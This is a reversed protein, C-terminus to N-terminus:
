GAAVRAVYGDLIQGWGSDMEGRVKAAAEGLKEIDRHEFDIRTRAADLPTFNIEVESVLTPDFKFEMNLQWGLILRRPPEWLVVKGWECEGGDEGVEYWRGNQKPEVVIAKFPSAGIHHEKVWWQGMNETFVRFAREQPAQVTLVKRIPAVAPHKM